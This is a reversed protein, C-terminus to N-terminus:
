NDRKKEENSDPFEPNSEQTKKKKVEVVVPANEVVPLDFLNGGDRIQELASISEKQELADERKIRVDKIVEILEEREAQNEVTMMVGELNALAFGFEDAAEVEKGKIQLLYLGILYHLEAKMRSPTLGFQNEVVALARKFEECAAEFDEKYVNVEALRRYVSVLIDQDPVPSRLLIVRATDLSEWALQLDDTKEEPEGPAPSGPSASGNEEKPLPEVAAVDSVPEESQDCASAKEADEAQSSESGAVAAVEGDQADESDLESGSSSGEDAQQSSSDARPVEEPVQDGFIKDQNEKEYQALLADGYRFYYKSLSNDLEDKSKTSLELAKCLLSIAKEYDERKLMLVGETFYFEPDSSREPSNEIVETDTSAVPAGKSARPVDATNTLDEM